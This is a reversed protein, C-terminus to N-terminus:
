NRGIKSRNQNIKAIKTSTKKTWAPGIKKNLKQSLSQAKDFDIPQADRLMQVMEPTYNPKTM